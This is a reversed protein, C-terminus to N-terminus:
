GMVLWLHRLEIEPLNKQRAHSSRLVTLGLSEVHRELYILDKVTWGAEMSKALESIWGAIRESWVEGTEEQLYGIMVGLRHASGHHAAKFRQIGGTSSYRSIVYEREDRANSRPTPLRKCEIPFLPDFDTHRRGEIWVTTACPSPALDLKRGENEEDPEEMRFQVFDWGPSHRAASNLHGCLQATLATESTKKKRDRRDRWRPLEDAIFEILELRSTAPLHLSRSLAGSRGSADATDALM